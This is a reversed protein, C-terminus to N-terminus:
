ICIDYFKLVQGVSVDVILDKLLPRLWPVDVLMNLVTPLWPAEMWCPAVLLLHRLQSNVHEALFKSLVLPVLAPSPFVYSEQFNWPHSFANLGLTGSATSIGFHFLTPM